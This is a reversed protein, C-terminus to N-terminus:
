GQRKASELDQPVPDREVWYTPASSIKLQLPDTFTRSILAFPVFVTFYFITAIARGQIDGLGAGIVGFRQWALRIIATM